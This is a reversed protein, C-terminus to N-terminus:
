QKENSSTFMKTCDSDSHMNDLLTAVHFSANWIRNLNMKCHENSTHVYFPFFNIMKSLTFSRAESIFVVNITLLASHGWTIHDNANGSLSTYFKM